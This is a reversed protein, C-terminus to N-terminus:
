IRVESGFGDIGESRQLCGNFEISFCQPCYPVTRILGRFQTAVMESKMLICLRALLGGLLLQNEPFFSSARLLSARGVRSF